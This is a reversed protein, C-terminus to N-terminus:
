TSPHCFSNWAHRLEDLHTNLIGELERLQHANFGHNYALGVPDLWFKARGGAKEVHMHRPEQCDAAFFAFRYGNARLVTPM